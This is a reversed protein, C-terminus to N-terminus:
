AGVERIRKEFAEIMVGAMEGKVAGLMAAHVPSRFELSIELDVRTSGNGDLPRLVWKTNLFEFVGEDAAPNKGGSKAEVVWNSRDCRVESTFTESVPGYGVTLFARTPSNTEPDRATVTSTTLFPLFQSYSEVSSIVKYLPEPPYPLTRTATVTNNSKNPTNSSNSGGNSPFLSSLDPLHFSRIPTTSLTPRHRPPLRLPQHTNLSQLPIHPSSPIARRCHRVVPLPLPKM